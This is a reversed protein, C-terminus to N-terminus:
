LSEWRGHGPHLGLSWSVFLSTVQRVLRQSKRGPPQGLYGAPSALHAQVSLPDVIRHVHCGEAMSEM